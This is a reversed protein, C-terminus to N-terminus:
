IYIYIYKSINLLRLGKTITTSFISPRPRAAERWYWRLVVFTGSCWFWLVDGFVNGARRSAKADECGSRLIRVGVTSLLVTGYADHPSLSVIDIDMDM